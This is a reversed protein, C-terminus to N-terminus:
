GVVSTGVRERCSARGIQGASWLFADTPSTNDCLIVPIGDRVSPTGRDPKNSTRVISFLNRGRTQAVTDPHQFVAYEAIAQVTSRFGARNLVDLLCARGDLIPEKGRQPSLTEDLDPIFM